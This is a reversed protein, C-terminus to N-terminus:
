RYSAKLSGLSQGEVPVVGVLEALMWWLAKGKQYCNFCQSHACALCTPCAHTSCWATCWNCFDTEYPYYTGAPDYSEIDAFDYLVKDNAACYARVLNNNRYLIGDPGTGDLHGTMYVFIVGPYDQELQSMAQLYINVGAETNTSMGGCWSWMVVNCEPHTNLWDRTPQVWNTDGLEGLDDTYEQCTPRDYLDPDEIELMWAGMMLQSGHSTHGYFIRLDNRVSSFAEDPLKEFKLCATHDAVIAATALSPLGAIALAFLIFKGM